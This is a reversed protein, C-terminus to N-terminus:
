LSQAPNKGKKELNTIKPTKKEIVCFSECTLWARGSRCRCVRSYPSRHASRRDSPLAQTSFADSLEVLRDLFLFRISSYWACQITTALSCGVSLARRRFTNSALAAPAAALHAILFTQTRGVPARWEKIENPETHALTARIPNWM